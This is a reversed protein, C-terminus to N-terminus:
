NMDLIEAISLGPSLPNGNEAVGPAVRIVVTIVLLRLLMAGNPAVGVEETILRANSPEIPRILSARRRRPEVM